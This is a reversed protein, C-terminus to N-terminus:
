PPAMLWRPMFRTAREELETIRQRVLPQHQELARECFALAGAAIKAPEAAGKLERFVRDVAKRTETVAFFQNTLFASDQQFMAADFTRAKKKEETSSSRAAVSYFASCYALDTAAKVRPTDRALLTSSFSLFDFIRYALWFVLLTVLLPALHNWIGRRAKYACRWIVFGIVALAFLAALAWALAVWELDPALGFRVLAHMTATQGFYIVPLAPVFALWFVKWLPLQGQFARRWIGGDRPPGNSTV